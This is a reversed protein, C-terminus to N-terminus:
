TLNLYEATDEVQQQDRGVVLTVHPERSCLVSVGDHRSMWATGGEYNEANAPTAFSRQGVYILLRRGTRDQYAYATVPVGALEGAAAATETLGFRTLDPAETAPIRAGPLRGARFEAVASAIPEPPTGPIVARVVVVGVAIAALLALGAAVLAVPRRPLRIRRRRPPTTTRTPDTASAAGSDTTSATTATAIRERLADPVPERALMALQRGRRGREVERWCDECSLLHDEFEAHPAGTLEGAVYAAVVETEHTV